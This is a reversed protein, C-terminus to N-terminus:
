FLPKKSKTINPKKLYFPVSYAVDSFEGEKWKDLSPHIMNAATNDSNEVISIKDMISDSWGADSCKNAGNGVIYIHGFSDWQATDFEPLVIAKANDNAKKHHDFSQMYVEMRRADIMSVIVDNKGISEVHYALSQLTSVEIFPIDLQYCLAKAISYGVRLGTYSGPGMSVSVADIESFKLNAQDLCRQAYITMWESHKNGEKTEEIALLETGKQLGVSCVSTASELSLIVPEKEM